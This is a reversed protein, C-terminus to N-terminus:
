VLQKSKSLGTALLCSKSAEPHQGRIDVKHVLIHDLCTLHGEHFPKRLLLGSSVLPREIGLPIGQTLDSSPRGILFSGEM